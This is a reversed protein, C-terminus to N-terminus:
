EKRILNHYALPFKIVERFLKLLGTSKKLCIFPSLKAGHLKRVFNFLPKLKPQIDKSLIEKLINM